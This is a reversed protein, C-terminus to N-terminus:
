AAEEEDELLFNWGIEAVESTTRKDNRFNDRGDAFAKLTDVVHRSIGKRGILEGPPMVHALRLSTWVDAETRNLDALVAKLDSILADATSATVLLREANERAEALRRAKGNTAAAVFADAEAQLAQKRATELVVRDARAGDLKARIEALRRAAEQDGSVASLSLTAAEHELGRLVSALASLQGSIHASSAPTYTAKTDTM